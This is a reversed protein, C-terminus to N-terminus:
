DDSIAVRPHGSGEGQWSDGPPFSGQFSGGRIHGHLSPAQFYLNAEKRSAEERQTPLVESPVQAPVGTSPWTWPLSSRPFPSPYPDMPIYRPLVWFGQTVAHAVDAAVHRGLDAAIDVGSFSAGVSLWASARCLPRQAQVRRQPHCLGPFGGWGLCLQCWPQRMCGLPLWWM